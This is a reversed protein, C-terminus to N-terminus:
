IVSVSGGTVTVIVAEGCGEVRGNVVRPVPLEEEGTELTKLMLPLAEVDEGAIKVVDPDAGGGEPVAVPPSGLRKVVVNELPPATVCCGSDV